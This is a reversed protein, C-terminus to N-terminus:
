HMEFHYREGVDSTHMSSPNTWSQRTGRGMASVDGDTDDKTELHCNIDAGSTIDEEDHDSSTSCATQMPM